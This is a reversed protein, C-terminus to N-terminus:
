IMSLVNNTEDSDVEESWAKKVKLKYRRSQKGKEDKVPSNKYGNEKLAQHFGKVNPIRELGEGMRYINNYISMVKQATIGEKYSDAPEFCEDIFTDLPNMDRRYEKVANLAAIPQALGQEKYMMHGAILWNLIEGKMDNTTLKDLLYVDKKDDPVHYNYPILRMRRWIGEDKGKIRPRHNGMMVPTFKLQQEKTDAFYAKTNVKREGTLKKVLGESWASDKDTESTIVVRKGACRHLESLTINDSANQDAMLTKARITSAYTGMVEAIADMTISKGNNGGGFLFFLVNERNYGEMLYGLCRQLYNALDLDGNMSELVFKTWLNTGEWDTTNMDKYKKVQDFSSIFPVGTCQTLYNKADHGQISYDKLNIVCNGCNLLEAHDDFDEEKKILESSKGIYNTLAQSHKASKLNKFYTRAISACPTGKKDVLFQLVLKEKKMDNIIDGYAPLISNKYDVEWVGLNQDYVYIHKGVSCFDEKYKQIFRDAIAEDTRPDSYINTNSFDYKFTPKANVAEEKMVKKMLDIAAIADGKGAREKLQKQVYELHRSHASDIISLVEDEQMPEKGETSSSYYEEALGLITLRVEDYHRKERFMMSAQYFLSQNRADYDPRYFESDTSITPLSKLDGGLSNVYEETLGLEEMREDFNEKTLHDESLWALKVEFINDTNKQHLFGPARMARALDHLNTDTVLTEKDLSREVRVHDALKYALAKQYKKYRDKNLKNWEEDNESFLLYFHSKYEDAEPNKSSLTVISPKILEVLEKIFPKPLYYDFDICFGRVRNCNKSRRRLNGEDDTTMENITASCCFGEENNKNLGSFAEEIDSLQYFDYWGKKKDDFDHLRQICFLPDERTDFQTLATIFNIFDSLRDTM